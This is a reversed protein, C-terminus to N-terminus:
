RPSSRSCRSTGGRARRFGRAIDMALMVLLATAGLAIASFVYATLLDHDRVLNQVVYTAGFLISTWGVLRARRAGRGVFLAGAGALLFLMGGAANVLLHLSLDLQM